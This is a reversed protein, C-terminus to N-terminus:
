EYNQKDLRREILEILIHICKIHLEQVRDAWRGAPTVISVDALETIPTEDRGTLAVVKVGKRRAVEAAKVINRSTGSTTIALLVDGKRGHAEVYRSFVEEYGYDNGVCAMHSADSIALAAYPRRNSRYRGTMEEAFHMADCLSGGNGCSMVKGDGEVADAMLGAAAVVAEITKENSILADLADRADNLAALVNAKEM